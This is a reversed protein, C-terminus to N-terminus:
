QYVEIYEKFIKIKKNNQKKKKYPFHWFIMKKSFFLVRTYISKCKEFKYSAKIVSINDM